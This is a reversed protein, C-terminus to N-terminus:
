CQNQESGKLHSFWGNAFKTQAVFLPLYSKSTEIFIQVLVSNDNYCPINYLSWLNHKWLDITHSTRWSELSVYSKDSDPPVLTSLFDLSFHQKQNCLTSCSSLDFLAWSLLMASKLFSNASNIFVKWDWWHTLFHPCLLPTHRGRTLFTDFSPDKHAGRQDSPRCLVTHWRLM